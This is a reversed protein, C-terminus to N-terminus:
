APVGRNKLVFFHELVITLQPIKGRFPKPSSQVKQVEGLGGNQSAKSRVPVGEKHELYM